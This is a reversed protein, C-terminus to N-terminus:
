HWRRLESMEIVGDRGLDVFGDRSIEFWPDGNPGNPVHLTRAPTGGQGLLVAIQGRESVAVDLVMAAHGGHHDARLFVDGPAITGDTVPRTDDLLSRPTAHEFVTELYTCFSERSSNPEAMTLIQLVGTEFSARMGQEWAMWDMRQGGDFHFSIGATEKATWAHEARLRIMMSAAALMHTNPQLELVAAVSPDDSELLSKKKASLVAEGFPRTPLHRLWDAFSGDSVRLRRWGERADVRDLLPKYARRDAAKLWGYDGSHDRTMVRERSLVDPSGFSQGVTAPSFVRSASSFVLFFICVPLAYRIRLGPIKSVLTRSKLRARKLLPRGEQSWVTKATDRLESFPFAARVIM